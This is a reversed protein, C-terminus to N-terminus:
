PALLAEVQDQVPTTVELGDKGLYVSVEARVGLEGPYYLGPGVTFGTGVVLNRQDKIEFDDLDTGSGYLDADLSHGTRHLVREIVGGRSLFDRAAKDVEWGRVARRRKVRDSVLALAEDRALSAAEFARAVAVPVTADAVAVWTTAAFVGGDVKGALSILVVDGRTLTAARAPAPVYDPDATNKGFAVVPAAV